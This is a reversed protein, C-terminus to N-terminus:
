FVRAKKRKLNTDSKLMKKKKLRLNDKSMTKKGRRLSKLLNDNSFKSRRLVGSSTKKVNNSSSSSTSSMGAFNGTKKPKQISVPVLIASASTSPIRSTLIHSSCCPGNLDPDLDKTTQKTIDNLMSSEVAYFLPLDVADIVSTISEDIDKCKKPVDMSSSSSEIPAVSSLVKPRKTPVSPMSTLVDCLVKGKKRNTGEKKGYTTVQQKNLSLKVKNEKSIELPMSSCLSPNKMRKPKTTLAKSSSLVARAMSKDIDSRLSSRLGQLNKFESNPLRSLPNSNTLDLISPGLARGVDEFIAPTYKPVILSKNRASSNKGVPPLVNVYRGTNYNSELTYSKILGITKFIAVRGSGEKSLGDRKGKLYMNRESFVCADFHFHSCNMSMLRPLLMCEVAESTNTLHNGYMFIGKKSAHGHLDIYLFMNSKDTMSKEGFKQIFEASFDLNKEDVVPKKKGMQFPTCLLRPSRVNRIMVNKNVSQKLAGSKVSSDGPLPDTKLSESRKKLKFPKKFVAPNTVIIPKIETILEDLFVKGAKREQTTPKVKVDDRDCKPLESLAKQDFIELESSQSRSSDSSCCPSEDTSQSQNRLNNIPINEDTTLDSPVLLSENEQDDHLDKDFHYYRILKRVAYISPQTELKPLLYVRNLNHGFTDSRYCGNHVGDPNLFPVIKFVYLKRLTAAVVSRRDLILKLFGNLVFSSPTEGPHVRSSIFIIKKDKFVHCRRTNLDTFLNTLREETKSQIGHFSSITLLDVNRGEVSKILLERHFYIDNYIDSTSMKAFKSEKQTSEDLRDSQLSHILSDMEQVLQNTDLDEKKHEIRHLRELILNIEQETKGYLLNYHELQNQCETYTFPFTFAYYIPVCTNTLPKHYFTLTFNDEYSLYTPNDKMREWKGNNGIKMVPHMGQSFLKTQKNLNVVNIKCVQFAKGGHVSFMFWSRNPNEYETGACDPKTWINIEACTFNETPIIDEFLNVLEVKALNGSDFNSNFVYGGCLFNDM